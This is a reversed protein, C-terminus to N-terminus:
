CIFSSSVWEFEDTLKQDEVTYFKDMPCNLKPDQDGVQLYYSAPLKKLSKQFEVALKEM